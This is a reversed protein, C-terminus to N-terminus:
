KLSKLFNSLREKYETEATKIGDLHSSETLNVINLALHKAEKFADDIAQVPVLKDQWARFSLVPFGDPLSQLDKKLNIEHDIGWGYRVLFTFLARAFINKVKFHQEILNYSCTWMHVFPGSDCIIAKINKHSGRVAVDFAAACPNSFAYIIIERDPYNLIIDELEDAWIYRIGIKKSRSLPAKTLQWKPDYSLDFGVADYGLQNVYQIHRKLLKQNGGFFHIFVILEKQKIISLSKETSSPHEKQSAHNQESNAASSAASDVSAAQAKNAPYFTHKNDHTKLFPIKLNM